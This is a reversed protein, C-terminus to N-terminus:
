IRKPRHGQTERLRGDSAHVWELRSPLLAPAEVDAKEYRVGASVAAAVVAEICREALLAGAEPEFLAVTGSSIEFHPYRKRIAPSDLWEYALGLREFIARAEGISREAAPAM